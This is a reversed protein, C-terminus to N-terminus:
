EDHENFFVTNNKEIGPPVVGGPVILAIHPLGHTNITDTYGDTILIVADYEDELGKDFIPQMVTGGGGEIPPISDGQVFDKDLRVNTDCYILRIKECFNVAFNFYEGIKELAKPHGFVSGSSDVGLLIKPKFDATKGRAIFGYRKSPKRWTNQLVDVKCNKVFHNLTDKYDVKPELANLEKLLEQPLRGRDFEEKMAKNLLNKVMAEIEGARASDGEAEGQESDDGKFEAHGDKILQGKKGKDGLQNKMEPKQQFEKELMGYIDGFTHESINLNKTSDFIHKTVLFNALSPRKETALAQEANVNRTYEYRNRFIMDNVVIDQAINLIDKDTYQECNFLHRLCIHLLEHVLLDSLEQESFEYKIMQGTTPHEYHFNAIFEPNYRICIKKSKKDAFGVEITQVDKSSKIQINSIIYYYFRNGGLLYCLSDSVKMRALRKMADSAEEKTNDSM